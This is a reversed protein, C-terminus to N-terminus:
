QHLCVINQCRPYVPQDLYQKSTGPEISAKYSLGELRKSSSPSFPCKNEPCAEYGAHDMNKNQLFSQDSILNRDDALNIDTKRNLGLM